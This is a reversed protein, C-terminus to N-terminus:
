RGANRPVNLRRMPSYTLGSNFYVQILVPAVGRSTKRGPVRFSQGMTVWRFSIVM